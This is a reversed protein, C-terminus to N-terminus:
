QKTKAFWSALLKDQSRDITFFTPRGLNNLVIINLYELAICLLAIIVGSFFTVVTVLSAWGALGITDPMFLGQVFSFLGIAGAFLAAGFGVILGTSAIDLESSVILRRAHRFLRAIGYGSQNTEIFRDDQMAIEISECSRTFWSIAIDFYTNSSSSSAAARAISGRILRFSNFLRIQPTATLRALIRKVLRSSKDRWTEGHVANSPRAYVVDSQNEIQCRFLENILSPRHQLDEDLTVVWDTSTHCIGAVTAAHQGYNRSLCIKTIWSHDKVLQDLVRSSEDIAGDDVFISEVLRIPSSESDWEKRLTDLQAVLEPLYNEGAYVPTVTSVSIPLNKSDSEM